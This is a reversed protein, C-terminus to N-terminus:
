FRNIYDDSKKSFNFTINEIEKKINDNEKEIVEVRNKLDSIEKDQKNNIEKLNQNEKILQNVLSYVEIISQNVDKKTENLKFSIDKILPHNLTIILNLLSTEEILIPTKSNINPELTFYVDEISECPSFYKNQKITSLSFKEQFFKLPIINIGKATIFISESNFKMEINYKNNKDSDLILKITKTQPLPAETM